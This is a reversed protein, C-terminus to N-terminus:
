YVMKNKRTSDVLFSGNLSGTDSDPNFNNKEVVTESITKEETEETNESPIIESSSEQESKKNEAIGLNKHLNKNADTKSFYSM